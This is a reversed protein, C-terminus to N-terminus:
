GAVEVGFTLTVMWADAEDGDRIAITQIWTVRAKQGGELTLTAGDLADKVASGIRYAQDEASATIAGTRSMLPKTFGQISLRFSSSDLGSARFPSAIVSGLRTFPFTRKAPVTGPYMSAAPVLELLPGNHKM